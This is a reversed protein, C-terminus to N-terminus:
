RHILIKTADTLGNNFTTKKTDKEADQCSNTDMNNMNQLIELKTRKMFCSMLSPTSYRTIQRLIYLINM